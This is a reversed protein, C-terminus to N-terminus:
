PSLTAMFNILQIKNTNHSDSECLTIVKVKNNVDASWKLLMENNEYPSMDMICLTNCCSQYLLGTMEDQSIKAFDAPMIEKALNDIVGPEVCFGSDTKIIGNGYGSYYIIIQNVLSSSGIITNLMKLTTERTPETLVIINEETFGYASLLIQKASLCAKIRNQLSVEPFDVYNLGILLAIKSHQKMLEVIPDPPPEPILLNLSPDVTSLTETLSATEEVAPSLIENIEISITSDLTTDSSM